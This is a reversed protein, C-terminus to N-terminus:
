GRPSTAAAPSRCSRRWRPEQDREEDAEGAPARDVEGLQPGLAGEALQDAGRALEVAAVPPDQDRDGQGPQHDDAAGVQEGAQEGAAAAGVVRGPARADVQREASRTSDNAGASRRATTAAITIM